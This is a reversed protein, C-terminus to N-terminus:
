AGKQSKSPTTEQEPKAVIVCNRGEEKAKYLAKDAKKMVSHPETLNPEPDALGISITVQVKKAKKQPSSAAKPKEEEGSMMRKLNESHKSIKRKARDAFLDKAELKNQQNRIYFEREEIKRRIKNAYMYADEASVNKFIICFEEGGYRYATSGSERDLTHAVMRLVNDGEEHGYTDNFSKFHDIDIMAVAYEGDLGITYEDLARRNPIGTLEDIYVRHWYMRFIAHSLLGAVSAYCIVTNAVLSDYSTGFNLGIQVATMFPLLVIFSTNVFHSIKKDTFMLISAGYAIVSIFAVQPVQLGWEDFSDIFNFTALDNFQKASLLFLAVLLGLPALIVTLKLLFFVNFQRSEKIGIISALTLPLGMALIQRMRIKGIGLENFTGDHTHIMIYYSFFLFAAMITIRTQNLKWAMFGILAFAIYPLDAIVDTVGRTLLLKEGLTPVLNVLLPIVAILAYVKYIKLSKENM